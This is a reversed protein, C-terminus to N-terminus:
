SHDDHAAGKPAEEFEFLAGFFDKPSVFFIPRGHYGPRPEGAGVIKLGAERVAEAAEGADPVHLAVHHVGGAPNRELFKAVPSDPRMPALLEITAEGVQVMVIRVGQEPVEKPAGPTVGFRAALQAAATELDPVAIGVHSFGLAPILDRELIPRLVSAPAAERAPEIM